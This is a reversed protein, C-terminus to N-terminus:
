SDRLFSADKFWNLCYKEIVDVFQVNDKAMEDAKYHLGFYRQVPNIYGQSKIKNICKNAYNEGHVALCVDFITKLREDNIEVKLDPYKNHFAKKIVDDSDVRYKEDHVVTEVGLKRKSKPRVKPYGVCLLVVPFVGEPLEFMTKLESFYEMVTGIYVTGLDLADAATCINQATIITDQFSIWFHRFSENASFPATEIEAWRKIRNWDICFLLNVPATGIFDQFCMEGLKKSTAKNEIKIISYPQLNGGTPAHIGAKLLYNLKEPEIKRDHFSRCSSRELLLRITENPYNIEESGDVGHHSPMNKSM